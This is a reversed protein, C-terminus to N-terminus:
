SRSQTLVPALPSRVRGCSGSPACTSSIWARVRLPAQDGVSRRGNRTCGGHHRLTQPM